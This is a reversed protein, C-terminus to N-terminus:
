MTITCVVTNGFYKWLYQSFLVPLKAFAHAINPIVSLLLFELGFKKM